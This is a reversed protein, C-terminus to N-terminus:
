LMGFLGIAIAAALVGAGYASTSAVNHFPDDTQQGDSINTTSPDNSGDSSGTATPSTTFTTASSTINVRRPNQAGCQKGRACLDVCDNNNGCNNRCKQISEQCLNFTITESYETLNPTSGGICICQTFLDEVWCDNAQTEVHAQDQCIARCSAKQQECWIVRTPEPIDDATIVPYVQAAALTSLGSVLLVTSLKM